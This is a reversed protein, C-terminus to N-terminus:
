QIKQLLLQMENRTKLPPEGKHSPKVIWLHDMDTTFLDKHCRFFDRLVRKWRNRIVANGTKRTVIIGLRTQQIQNPCRVYTLTQGHVKARSKRMRSFDNATCMRQERPFSRSNKEEM